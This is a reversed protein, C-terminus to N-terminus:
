WVDLVCMYMVLCVACIDDFMFCVLRIVCVYVDQLSYMARKLSCMARKLSYM